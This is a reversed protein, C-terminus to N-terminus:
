SLSCRSPVVLVPCEAYRVVQEAVSGLVMRNFGTRGHTSIVTLDVDPRRTEACIQEVVNGTRIETACKADDFFDLKALGEMDLRAQALDEDGKGLLDAPM